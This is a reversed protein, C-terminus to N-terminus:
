GGPGSRAPDTRWDALKQGTRELPTTLWDQAYEVQIVRVGGLEGGRVMARAQRVMPYGTYTHTVGFILGPTKVRRALDLADEVTSTLPKDCIVHIGADLFAKAISYHLHNPTAITVADIPDPRKAEERAM